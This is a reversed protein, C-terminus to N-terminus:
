ILSESVHLAVRPTGMHIKTRLRRCISTTPPLLYLQLPPVVTATNHRRMTRLPLNHTVVARGIPSPRTPPPRTTNMLPATVQLGKCMDERTLHPKITSTICPAQATMIAVTSMMLTFGEKTMWRPTCHSLHIMSRSPLCVVKEVSKARRGIQKQRSRMWDCKTQTGQNPDQMRTKIGTM